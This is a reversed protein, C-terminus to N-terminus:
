RLESSALGPELPMRTEHCGYAHPTLEIV